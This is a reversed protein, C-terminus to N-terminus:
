NKNDRPARPAPAAVKHLHADDVLEIGRERPEGDLLLGAHNADARVSIEYIARGYRYRLTLGEWEPPLRPDLLLRQGRREIGLLGEVVMLWAWGASSTYCGGIARGAHPALTRVGEALFYPMAGHRLCADVNATRRIPDLMRALRWAPAAEGLRALGIAAMATARHDQGPWADLGPAWQGDAPPDCLPVQDGHEGALREVAARLAAAGHPAGALQASAQTLLDIRCDPNVAAGLVAGDDLYAWRYWEGDWGHEGLQAELAQAAGRCTTAFGFDGRRDAVEAFRQLVAMMFFGLRVSEARSGPGRVEEHLRLGALPLGRAGFRLCGRLGHVCLQYLDDARALRSAGGSSGGDGSDLPTERLVGHDGTAGLYRVIAFPLWLFDEATPHQGAGFDRSARLLQERVLAPRAHLAAQVSQLRKAPSPEGMAAVIAQYPLWGNVLLDLAADPSELQVRELTHEWWRRLREWAAGAAQVGGHRQVVRSADLSGPGSVGLVFVLEAEEGPQLEIGVQLAGCPDLGAGVSGSLGSRALAAPMAIDGQPGIFELRDATCAVQEADVHFFAVKDRFGEGFANRAFLAGSALDIGTVVQLGPTADARDLMWEVYGTVSLRRPASSDNRLRLVSYKLPADLAVFCRLESGIGWARHEFVSYGFGHRTLYGEGSPAPWPTPSWCAGSDEDRLYFAEGTGPAPLDDGGATVRAERGGSWSSAHGRESVVSGFEPNALLNVWPAGPVPLGPGSRIVYERGGPAFGGIGNDHALAERPPEPAAATWAQAQASPAFPPPLAARPRAARRLQDPLGGREDSLLVRAISRLLIRDEHPIDPLLHVHVGGPQEFSSPDLVPAALHMMQERATRSECLVLLDVAFGRSRWYAHAQMAQRALGTDPGHGLQLLVVPLEGDIGYPRLGDRGRVNRAILAADARLAPVPYALCGALRTFMQADAESLELRRLFAQGHTWAAEIAHDIVHGMRYRAALDRAVRRSGAAGLVLDVTIEQGPALTVMRRIALAPDGPEPDLGALAGGLTVAQPARLDRGRGIFRARSTEHSAAGSDDRVSMLHLLVPADPATACLLAQSAEDIEAAASSRAGSAVPPGALAVYSTLELTRPAAGRNAIRIRRLEVDDDPAVVADTVMDIGHDHRRFTARGEAFVTEQREPRALAPLLTNSWLRGDAPDRVYLAMAGDNGEARTLLLEDWRSTGAGDSSLLLHYGGNSLLQVEPLTAGADQRIVRAYARAALAGDQAVRAGYRVPAAAGSAPLAEQLLPLAARFEPDAAFRRQMPHGHLLQVLALLGMAQHRSAYARVVVQREGAPLRASAYDLGEYFGHEGLLGQEAMRELNALALAPAANLALMAAYPAAVLDDGARRQLAAAPIGFRGFRYRAAADVANCGSESYGWLIGKRRAHAAQARVLARGAGDLLTDRWSPMILQPALYDSVAGCRSLLLPEAGEMRVPRGLSWWHQQPLQDQAVAAFSAMRAESALLDCSDADMRDDRVHYGAALLGAGADYLACFDMHALARAQAALRELDRLRRHACGRGEEVLRALGQGPADAVDLAALERLSPIRTLRADLVYEQTARSWPAVAYLDRLQAECQAALRASWARLGADADAPLSDKLSRAEQTVTRLCEALGPLTDLARCREPEMARSVAAVMARTAPPAAAAHEEVIRLAARIGDLALRDAVPQDPLEDLGAALTRLALVLSGSGATAVFAPEVPALSAGQYWQFFHGRWRELLAMSALATEVRTLLAGAPIFGADHAGLGALLSLGMGAPSVRADVQPQPHELVAEPALGRAGGDHDEFFSWTRRALARLFASQAAGLRGPRQRGPQSGWWALAPSLFWILLLPAVTFLAYPNAFTLLLAIGVAFAPACWMTRWNNVIVSSPRALLPQAGQLLRRRSVHRRWLARGIADLRCWATHPLFAVELASRVLPVRAGRAWGDLHQRWPADHPRDALAVLAGALAPLFYVALVAASWFAPTALMSWCLILLVVLAPEVLSDRLRDFLQWRAHPAELVAADKGGMRGAMQWHMRTDRHRRVAHEGYSAPHAADLQVDRARGARLRDEEPLGPAFRGEDGIGDGMARQWADVDYIAAWGQSGDAAAGCGAGQAAWSGTGDAWLREYRTARREPLPACIRPRLLGHGELVRGDKGLAPQNLPHAMAAVLQRAADRPLGTHADLAIVYRVEALAGTAGAVLQFRERAGGCLWANLDSLQGRRRERGIWERESASWSRPRQMLLFPEIRVSVADPNGHEDVTETMQEHGHKRNLAEIAARAQEVLAADLPMQEAPADALDALLCFRLRPDRNGLYRVELDRCLKAVNAGSSLQASVAVVTQAGAPIGAGYDMRPTIRPPALWGTMLRVLARALQSAGLLAPLGLAAQLLLGAGGHRAHIVIAATFLLTLVAVAGLQTAQPAAEAMRRLKRALGGAQLRQELLSRGPGALYYGVHRTRRDLGGEGPARHVGALALAEQAVEIEAHRTAKALREVTGRYLDRTPGDMRAYSGDPDARLVQEVASINEAFARWDVGGAQRLSALSNAASVADDAQESREAEMQLAISLGEDALRADIWDLAQTLTAGQGHLRRALEAVFGSGLPEVSRVMDAVLLILDGPRQEAAEVMRAAWDAALAREACVRAARAALRRLNDVLALRLMSPLADLEALALPAGEQYAALFRSLQDPDIRGDGHAVAETMLRFARPADDPALRPLERADRLLQGRALRVQADLLHYQDLLRLGAPPPERGAGAARDLADCAQAIAAANADLLGLMDRASAAGSLQHRAALQRGHVALQAASLPAARLPADGGAGAQGAREPGTPSEAM